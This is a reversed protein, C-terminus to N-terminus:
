AAVLSRRFGVATAAMGLGTLALIAGFGLPGLLGAVLLVGLLFGLLGLTGVTLNLMGQHEHAVAAARAGGLSAAATSNALLFACYLLPAVLAVRSEALFLISAGQAITAVVFTTIAGYRRQMARVLPLTAVVVAVAGAVITASAQLEDMGLHERLVAPMLAVAAGVFMSWLLTVWGIKRLQESARLSSIGGVMRVRVLTHPGPEHGLGPVIALVALAAVYLVCIGLMVADTGGERFLLLGIFATGFLAAQNITTRIAHARLLGEDRTTDALGRFVSGETLNRMVAVVVAAVLVLWFWDKGALAALPYLACAGLSVATAWRVMRLPDVGDSWAGAPLATVLLPVYIFSGALAAAQPSSGRALLMWPLVFMFQGQVAATLSNAGILALTRRPTDLLRLAGVSM